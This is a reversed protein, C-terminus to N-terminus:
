LVGPVAADSTAGEAGDVDVIELIGVLPPIIMTSAGAGDERREAEERLAGHGWCCKCTSSSSHECETPKHKCRSYSMEIDSKRKYLLPNLTRVRRRLDQHIGEAGLALTGYPLRSSGSINKLQSVRESEERRLSFFQAVVVLIKNATSGESSEMLEEQTCINLVAALVVAIFIKAEYKVMAAKNNYVDLDNPASFLTMVSPFGTKRSQRYMRHGVDQAEHARIVFLLRNHELCQCVPKYTYFYSCGRVYNHVFNTPGKEQGFDEIPDSWMIVCMLGSTPPELFQDLKKVFTARCTCSPPHGVTYASSNSNTTAAFEHKFTFCDALHRCEHNGRLLFFSDPHWNSASIVGTSTTGSSSTDPTPTRPGGASEFLKMLDYKTVLSQRFFHPTLIFADTERM